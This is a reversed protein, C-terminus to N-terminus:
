PKPRRQKQGLHHAHLDGGRLRGDGKRATAEGRVGGAGHGGDERAPGGHVHVGGRGGGRAAGPLFRYVTVSALPHAAERDDNGASSCRWWGRQAPLARVQRMSRGAVSTWSWASSSWSSCASTGRGPRVRGPDKVGVQHLFTPGVMIGRRCQRNMESSDIRNPQDLLM